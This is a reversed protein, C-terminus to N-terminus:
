DHARGIESVMTNTVSLAQQSIVDGVHHNGFAVPQATNITAKAYDWSRFLTTYPFLTFRPIRWSSSFSVNSAFNLTAMGNKSRSTSTDIGVKISASDTSGAALTNNTGATTPM